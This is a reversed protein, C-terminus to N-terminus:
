QRVFYTAAKIAIELEGTPNQASGASTDGLQAEEVIVFEPASEVAFLFRRIDRYTGMLTAESTVKILQSDRVEAHRHTGQQFVVGNQKAVQALWLQTVVQASALDRPLIDKYFKRLEVDVEQKRTEAMRADRDERRAQELDLLAQFEEDAAAGVSRQLPWVGIALVALNAILLLLVPLVVARREAYIRSWRTM